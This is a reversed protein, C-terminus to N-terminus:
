NLYWGDFQIV